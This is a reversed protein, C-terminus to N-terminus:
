RVFHARGGQSLIPMAEIRALWRLLLWALVQQGGGQGFFAAWARPEELSEALLLGAQWTCGCRVASQWPGPTVRPCIRQGARLVSSALQLANAARTCPGRLLAGSRDQCHSVRITRNSPAVSWPAINSAVPCAARCHLCPQVATVPLHHHAQRATCPAPLQIRNSCPLPPCHKPRVEPLDLSPPATAHHRLTPRQPAAHSSAHLQLHAQLQLAAAMIGALLQKEQLAASVSHIPREYLRVDAGRCALCLFAM